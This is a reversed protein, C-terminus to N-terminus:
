RDRWSIAFRVATKRDLVVCIGSSCREMDPPAADQSFGFSNRYQNPDRLFLTGRWRSMIGCIDTIRSIVDIDHRYIGKELDAAAHIRRHIDIRQMSGLNVGSSDGGIYRR